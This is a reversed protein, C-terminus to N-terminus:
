YIKDRKRFQNIIKNRSFLIVKVCIVSVIITIVSIIIIHWFNERILETNQKIVKAYIAIIGRKLPEHVMMIYLSNKGLWKLAKLNIKNSIMYIAFTGLLATIYFIFCYKYKLNMMNAGNEINSLIIVTVIIVILIM